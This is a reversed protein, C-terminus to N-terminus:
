FDRRRAQDALGAQEVELRITVLLQGTQRLVRILSGVVDDVKDFQYAARGNPNSRLARRARRGADRRGSERMELRETVEAGAFLVDDRGCDDLLAQAKGGRRLCRAKFQM